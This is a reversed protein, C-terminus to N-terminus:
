GVIEDFCPECLGSIQYEALGAMSYFTAKKKCRVCIDKQLAETLTIGFTSKSMEDKLKKM